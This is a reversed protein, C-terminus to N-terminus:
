NSSSQNQNRCRLFRLLFEREIRARTGVYEGGRWMNETGREYNSNWRFEYIYLWNYVLKKGTVAAHREYFLELAWGLEAIEIVGNIVCNTSRVIDIGYNEIRGHHHFTEFIDIGHVRAITERSSFLNPYTGAPRAFDFTLRAIGTEATQCFYLIERKGENRSYKGRNAYACARIRAHSRDLSPFPPSLRARVSPCLYLLTAEIEPTGPYTYLLRRQASEELCRCSACWLHSRAPHSYEPNM